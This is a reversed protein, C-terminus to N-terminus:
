LTRLRALAAKRSAAAPSTEPDGPPNGADGEWGDCVWSAMATFDYRSCAGADDGAAPRTFYECNACSGQADGEGLNPALNIGARPAPAGTKAAPAATAARGERALQAARMVAQDLTGVSDAMKQDVAARAGVMRGEGFGNRVADVPVGRGRAVDAVFMQYYRDVDSQMAARAAETLPEAPNGEVKYKGASIFTWKEGESELFKSIDVHLAYVGVSGVQGSPTVWIETAASALYYAASAAVSNAVAVVPKQKAAARIAQFAEPVGFVEGGPSDFELVVADVKPEAVAAEVQAAVDATSRTTESNIVDGRQTLTGIVPIVAVQGALQRVGGRRAEIDAAHIAGKLEALHRLGAIGEKAVLGRIHAAIEARIAWPRGSVQDILTLM